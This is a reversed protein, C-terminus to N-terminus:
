AAGGPAESAPPDAGALPRRSRRKTKLIFKLCINTSCFSKSQLSKEQFTRCLSGHASSGVQTHTKVTVPATWAGCSCCCWPFCFVGCVLSKKSFPAPQDTKTKAALRQESLGKQGWPQNQWQSHPGWFTAESLFNWSSHGSGFGYRPRAPDGVETLDSSQPKLPLLVLTVLM